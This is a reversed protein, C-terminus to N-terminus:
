SSMAAYRGSSTSNNVSAKLELLQKTKVCKRCPVEGRLLHLQHAKMSGHRPGVTESLAWVDVVHFWGRGGERVVPVIKKHSALTRLYSPSVGLYAAAMYADMLDDKPEHFRGKADYWGGGIVVEAGETITDRCLDRVPCVQRCVLVAKAGEANVHGKDIGHWADISLGAPPNLCAGHQVVKAYDQLNRIKM